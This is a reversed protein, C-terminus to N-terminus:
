KKDEDKKKVPKPLTLKDGLSKELALIADNVKPDILPHTVYEYGYANDAPIALVKFAMEVRDNEDLANEVMSQAPESIFARSGLFVEGDIVRTAKFDGEFSVWDGNDTTGTKIGKTIGILTYLFLEKPAGKKPKELNGGEYFTEASLKRVNGIISKASLKKLLNM